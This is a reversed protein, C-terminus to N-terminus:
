SCARVAREEAADDPALTFRARAEWECARAADRRRLEDYVTTAAKADGLKRYRLALAALAEFAEPDTGVSVGYTYRWGLFGAESCITRELQSAGLRHFFRRDMGNGQLLGMSGGYSYPLVAEPGWERAIATLRGAIEDLADDWGIREFRGDGKAGVRRMPHRLRDPHYQRELYQAVKACLFGRTVPHDPNGRLSTARGDAGISVLVSCADPCDL